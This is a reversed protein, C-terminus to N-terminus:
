ETFLIKQTDKVKIIKNSAINLYAIRKQIFDIISGIKWFKRFSKFSACM